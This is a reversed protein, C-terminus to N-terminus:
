LPKTDGPKPPSGKTLSEMLNELIARLDPSINGYQLTFKAATIIDSALDPSGKRLWDALLALTKQNIGVKGAAELNLLMSVKKAQDQNPTAAYLTKKGMFNYCIGWNTETTVPWHKCVYYYWDTVEIAGRLRALEELLNAALEKLVDIDKSYVLQRRIINLDSIEAEEEDGGEQKLTLDSKHEM